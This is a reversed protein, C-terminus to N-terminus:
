AARARGCEAGVSSGLNSDRGQRRELAALAMKEEKAEEREVLDTMDESRGCLQNGALKLGMMLGHLRFSSLFSNGDCDKQTLDDSILGAITSMFLGAEMMLEADGKVIQRNM